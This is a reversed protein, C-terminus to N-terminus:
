ISSPCKLNRIINTRKHRRNLIIPLFSGINTEPSRISNNLFFFFISLRALFRSPIAKSEDVIPM